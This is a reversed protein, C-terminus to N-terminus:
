STQKKHKDFDQKLKEYLKQLAEYKKELQVYQKKLESHLKEWNQSIEVEKAYALQLNVFQEQLVNLRETTKRNSELVEKYQSVITTHQTNYHGLFSDYTKQMTTIADAQQQKELIKHSKRGVVFSVIAGVTISIERWYEIISVM